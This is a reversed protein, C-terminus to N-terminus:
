RCLCECRYDNQTRNWIKLLGLQHIENCDCGGISLVADSCLQTTTNRDYGVDCFCKKMFPAENLGCSIASAVIIPLFTLLFISVIMNLRAEWHHNRLGKQDSFIGLITEVGLEMKSKLDNFHLLFM